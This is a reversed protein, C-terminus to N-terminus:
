ASATNNLFQIYSCALISAIKLQYVNSALRQAEQPNSMFGCEVLIAPCKVSSTLLLESPAPRAVRRNSTDLLTVLNDQTILGLSKSDTNDSYMVEAGSVVSSPFKNQHISILVANEKSNALKAREVLNDHESYSKDGSNDTDTSRTMVTNIGLFHALADTKLAIALNIDSEKLGSDSIAGGDIGGHGPDIVLTFRNNQSIATKLGHNSVILKVAIIAASILVVIVIIRILRKFDVTVFVFIM